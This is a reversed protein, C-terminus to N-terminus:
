ATLETTLNVWVAHMGITNMGRLQIQLGCVEVTLPVGLGNHAANIRVDGASLAPQESDTASMVLASAVQHPHPGEWWELAIHGELTTWWDFREGNQPSCRSDRLAHMVRGFIEYHRASGRAPRSSRTM